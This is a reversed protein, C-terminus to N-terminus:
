VANLDLLQLRTNELRHAIVPLLKLLFHYGDIPQENLVRRLHSAALGLVRTPKLARADLRWRHPPLLWSWGLVEGPGLTQITTRPRSPHIIELAIKGSFILLFEDAPDGERVLLAGSEFLREYATERLRAVFADNMGRLFPHDELVLPSDAHRRETM